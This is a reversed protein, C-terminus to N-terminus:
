ATRVGVVYPTSAMATIVMSFTVNTTTNAPVVQELVDVFKFATVKSTYKVTTGAYNVFPYSGGGISGIFIRYTKSTSSSNKIPVTVSFQQGYAGQLKGSTSGSPDTITSCDNGLFTDSSAGLTIGIGNTDLPTISPCTVTTYFGAGKGRARLTSTPDATAFASGGGSNSTYVLDWLTVPAPTTTGNKVVTIRAVIGFCYGNPIDRLFLNGYSNSSVTLSSSTGSYYSAWADADSGWNNNLTLGQNTINIKIDYNNPNYVLICNKITSGVGNEHWTYIQGTGQLNTVKNLFCGADALDTSDLTEPSNSYFFFENTNLGASGGSTLIQPSRSVGTQGTLLTAM